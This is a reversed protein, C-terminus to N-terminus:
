RVVRWGRNGRDGGGYLKASAGFGVVCFWLSECVGLHGWPPATQLRGAGRLFDEGATVVGAIPVRFQQCCIPAAFQFGSM